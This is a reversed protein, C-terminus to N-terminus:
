GALQRYGSAHFVIPSVDPYPTVAVVRLLVIDHDGAPLEDHVTCDLWIASGRIFVAGAENADWEVSGFRDIGKAALAQAVRAHQAGLVSLGLRPAARLVPWTESTHAVCISVLPPDLSVSTFSSATMGMPVSGSLACAVAVGSPFRGYAYRLVEKSLAESPSM